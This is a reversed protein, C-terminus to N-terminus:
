SFKKTLRCIHGDGEYELLDLCRMMLMIGLGGPKGERQRMRAREQPDTERGLALYYEYDFGKGDDRVTIVAKEHDLVCDCRILKGMDGLNGHHYANDIAERVATRLESADYENFDAQRVMDAMLHNAADIAKDNCAIEISIQHSFFKKEDSARKLEAESVAFLENYEFPETVSDNELVRMEKRSRGDNGYLRVVGILSSDKKSKLDMCLEDAKGVTNDIIILDPRNQSIAAMTEALDKTISFKGGTQGKGWRIALIDSFVNTEPIVLMVAAEIPTRPFRRKYPRPRRVKGSPPPKPAVRAYEKEIPEVTGVDFYEAARKRDPFLKIIAHFGIIRIIRIIDPPVKILVLDGGSERCIDQCRVLEGLGSSNIYSLGSLDFILRPTEPRLYKAIFDQYKPLTASNVIGSFALSLMTQKQPTTLTEAKCDLDAM